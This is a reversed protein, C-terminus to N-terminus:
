GQFYKLSSPVVIIGMKCILFNLNLTFLQSLVSWTSFSSAPVQIWIVKIVFNSTNVVFLAHDRGKSFKSNWNLFHHVCITFYLALPLVSTTNLFLSYNFGSSLSYNIVYSFESFCYFKLLPLQAYNKCCM